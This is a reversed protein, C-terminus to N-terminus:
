FKLNEHQKPPKMRLNGKNALFIKKKNMGCAFGTKKLYTRTM